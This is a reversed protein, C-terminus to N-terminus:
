IVENKIMCFSLPKGDIETKIEEELNKYYEEATIPKMGIKQMVRGSGINEMIYTAYLASFGVENFLFDRVASAAETMIGKNWLASDVQWGLYTCDNVIKVVEINGIMKGGMTIAWHYREGNEYQSAWMKCLAKSDEKSKHTNWSVYKAVEEKSAFEFVDNYDSERIPRLVLRETKIIQTGRNKHM